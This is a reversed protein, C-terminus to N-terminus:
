EGGDVETEKGDGEENVNEGKRGKEKDEIEEKKQCRRTQTTVPSL